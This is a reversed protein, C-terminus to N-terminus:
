QNLRVGVRTDKANARIFFLSWFIIVAALWIVTITFWFSCLYLIPIDHDLITKGMIRPELERQLYARFTAGTFFFPLLWGSSLVALIYAKSKKM